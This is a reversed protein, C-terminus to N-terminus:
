RHLSTAMQKIHHLKFELRDASEVPAALASSYDFDLDDMRAAERALQGALRAVPESWHQFARQLNANHTAIESEFHKTMQEIQRSSAILSQVFLRREEDLRTAEDSKGRLQFRIDTASNKAAAIEDCLEMTFKRIPPEITQGSPRRKKGKRPQNM